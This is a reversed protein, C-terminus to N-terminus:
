YIVEVSDPIRLSGDLGICESFAFSQIYKLGSPDSLSGKLGYFTSDGIYTVTEALSLTGDFGTCGQFASGQIVTVSKVVQNYFINLWKLM